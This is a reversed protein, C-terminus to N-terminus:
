DGKGYFTKSVSKGSGGSDRCTVTCTSSDASYGWGDGSRLGHSYSRSSINSKSGTKNVTGVCKYSCSFPPTGGSWTATGNTGFKMNSIPVYCSNCSCNQTGGGIPIGGCECKTTNSCDPAAFCSCGQTGDGKAQGGYQCVNALNCNSRRGTEGGDGRVSRETEM